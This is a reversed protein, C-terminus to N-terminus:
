EKVKFSVYDKVNDFVNRKRYYIFNAYHNTCLHKTVSQKECTPISCVTNKNVMKEIGTAHLHGNKRLRVYHMACYGGTFAKKSCEEVSCLFGKNDASNKEVAGTRRFRRYHKMCLGKSHLETKDCEEVSCTLTNPMMNLELGFDENIRHQYAKFLFVCVKYEKDTKVIEYNIQTGTKTSKVWRIPKMRNNLLELWIHAKAIAHETDSIDTNLQPYVITLESM